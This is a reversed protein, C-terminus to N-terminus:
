VNNNFQKFIISIFAFVLAIIMMSIIAAIIYSPVGFMTSISYLMGNQGFVMAFPSVLNTIIGYAAKYINSQYDEGVTPDKSTTSNIYTGTQSYVASSQDFSGLDWNIGSNYYSNWNAIIIGISTVVVGLIIIAFFANRFQLGKKNM